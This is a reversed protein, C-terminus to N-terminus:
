HGRADGPGAAADGSPPALLENVAAALVEPHDEPTFHKGGPIPQLTTGLDAALRRGYEVKQFRDAEGWVVRAPLGLSPLQDSIALTDEVRLASVQRMLGPAAGHAVYHQWHVGISELARARDDHGRHILQVFSPYLAIEPLYRLVPAARQMAKVSPIPWSDYCVANTLVLGSFRDPARVAAIQAVGGGLDHGVLVPAEAGVMDLWRLLRDAQAALGLDRGEGDPISTGYGTMELALCRGRVLPMVHRWLRPSTPIGHVLVVHAGEGHELWRIPEGDLLDEHLHVGLGNV